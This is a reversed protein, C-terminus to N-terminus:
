GARRRARSLTGLAVLGVAFLATVGPEPVANAHLELAWRGTRQAGDVQVFTAGPTGLFFQGTYDPVGDQAYGAAASDGLPLNGDQSLVLTYHGAPLVTDFHADWCFGSVPDANGAGDGCPDSSGQALQVLGFGDLFLALVPAFGGPVVDVGGSTTGGGYGFTRASIVDDALTTFAHVFLDDDHEFSGQFVFAPPAAIAGVNGAGWLTLACAVGLWRRLPLTFLPHM